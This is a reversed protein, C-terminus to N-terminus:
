FKFQSLFNDIQTDTVGTPKNNKLKKRLDSQNHVRALYRKLVPMTYKM